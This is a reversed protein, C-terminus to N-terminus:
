HRVDVHRRRPELLVKAEDVWEREPWKAIRGAGEHGVEDVDVRARDHLLDAHKAAAVPWVHFQELVGRGVLILRKALVGVPAGVSCRRSPALLTRARLAARPCTSGSAPSPRPGRRPTWSPPPSAPRPVRTARRCRCRLTLQDLAKM